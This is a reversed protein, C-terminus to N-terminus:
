CCSEKPKLGAGFIFWYILCQCPSSRRCSSLCLQLESNQKATPGTGWASTATNWWMCNHAEAQQVSVKHQLCIWLHVPAVDSSAGEILIGRCLKQSWRKGRPKGRANPTGTQTLIFSLPALNQYTKSIVALVEKNHFEFQHYSCCLCRQPGAM